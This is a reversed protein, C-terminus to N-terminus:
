FGNTSLHSTPNTPKLKLKNKNNNKINLEIVTGSREMEFTIESLHKQKNTQCKKSGM